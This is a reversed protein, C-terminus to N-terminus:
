KNKLIRNLVSKVSIVITPIVTNDESVEKIHKAYKGALPGESFYEIWGYSDLLILISLTSMLIFLSTTNFSSSLPYGITIGKEM